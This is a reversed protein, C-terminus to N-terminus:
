RAGQGQAPLRRPKAGRPGRLGTQTTTAGILEVIVEHSALPRGRWNMSIVSFLRHEIRNWRGLEPHPASCSHLGCDLKSHGKATGVRQDTSRSAADRATIAARRRSGIPANVQVNLTRDSASRRDCAPLGVPPCLHGSSARHREADVGVFVEV